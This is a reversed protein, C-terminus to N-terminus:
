YRDASEDKANGAISGDVSLAGSEFVKGGV